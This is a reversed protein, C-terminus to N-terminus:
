NSGRKELYENVLNNDTSSIIECENKYTITFSGGYKDFVEFEKIAPNIDTAKEIIKSRSCRVFNWYKKSRIFSAFDQRWQKHNFNVTLKKADWINRYTRAM